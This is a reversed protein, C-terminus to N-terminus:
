SSDFCSDTRVKIIYTFILGLTIIFILLFKSLKDCKDKVM